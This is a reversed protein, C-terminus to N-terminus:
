EESRNQLRIPLLESGQTLQFTLEQGDFKFAVASFVGSNLLKRARNNTEAYTLAAGPKLDTASLLEADSGAPAGAFRISKPEFNQGKAPISALAHVIVVFPLIRNRLM